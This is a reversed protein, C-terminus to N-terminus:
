ILKKRKVMLSTLKVFFFFLSFKWVGSCRNGFIVFQILLILFTGFWEMCLVLFVSKFVSVLKAMPEDILHCSKPFFVYNKCFVVLLFICLM